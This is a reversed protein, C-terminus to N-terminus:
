DLSIFVEEAGRKDNTSDAFNALLRLKSQLNRLRYIIISKHHEAYVRGQISKFDHQPRPLHVTWM